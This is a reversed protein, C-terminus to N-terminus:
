LCPFQRSGTLFIIAPKRKTFDMLKLGIPSGVYCWHGIPLMYGAIRRYYDVVDGKTIGEDPFLVKDQNSLEIECGEIKM